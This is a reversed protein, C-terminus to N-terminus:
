VVVVCLRAGRAHHAAHQRVMAHRPLPSRPTRRALGQLLPTAPLTHLLLLPSASPTRRLLSTGHLTTARTAAASRHHPPPPQTTHQLLLPAAPAAPPTCLPPPLAGHRTTTTTAARRPTQSQSAALTHTNRFHRRLPHVVTAVYQSLQTRSPPPPTPSRRAVVTHTSRRARVWTRVVANRVWRRPM